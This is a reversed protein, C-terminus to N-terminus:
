RVWILQPSSVNSYPSALGTATGDIAEQETLYYSVTYDSPSLNGLIPLDNDQLNFTTFGTDSCGFLDISTLNIEPNPFFEITIVDELFCQASFIIQVTYDGPETVTLTSSTEGLEIGDQYWTHTVNPINTELIIEGGECVATGADITIDEGLEIEGLDFSGAKLYVGSDLATDLADAIVLKIHYNQGINVESYATFVETRGDFS